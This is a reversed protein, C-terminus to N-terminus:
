FFKKFRKKAAEVSEFISQVSVGELAAIETLSKGEAVQLIRRQQVESLKSFAYETRKSREEVAAREQAEIERKEDESTIYFDVTPDAFAMGEYKAADTSVPCHYKHRHDSADEERRSEKISIGIEESVEVATRKLEYTGTKENFANYKYEIIM